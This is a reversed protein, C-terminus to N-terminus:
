IDPLPRMVLCIQGLPLHVRSGDHDEIICHDRAVVTLRGHLEIGADATVITVPEGTQEFESLRAKFTIAGGRTTHGGRPEREVRMLVRDFPADVIETQTQCVVYDKGTFVPFGTITRTATILSILDGRHMAARAVDSLGLRRLRGIHTEHETTEAETRIEAGVTQRLERALDELPDNSWETM